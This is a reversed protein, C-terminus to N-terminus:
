PCAFTNPWSLAVRGPAVQRRGARELGIRGVQVREHALVLTHDVVFRVCLESVARGRNKRSSLFM